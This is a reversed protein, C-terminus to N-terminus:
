TGLRPQQLRGDWSRVGEIFGGVAHGQRLRRLAMRVAQPDIQYRRVPFTHLHKAMLWGIVPVAYQTSKAMAHVKRTTCVSQILMPDLVSRHNAILLFPGSTPVHELGTIEIRGLFLKYLNRALFACLWYIM